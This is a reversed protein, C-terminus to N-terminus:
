GGGRKLGLTGTWMKVSDSVILIARMLNEICDAANASIGSLVTLWNANKSYPTLAVPTFFM